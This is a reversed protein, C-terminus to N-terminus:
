APGGHRPSAKRRADHDRLAQRLLHHASISKGFTWAAWIHQDAKMALFAVNAEPRGLGQVKRLWRYDRRDQTTLGVVRILATM